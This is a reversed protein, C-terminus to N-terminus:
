GEWVDSKGEEWGEWGGDGDLENRRWEDQKKEKRKREGEGGWERRVTSDGFHCHMFCRPVSAGRTSM